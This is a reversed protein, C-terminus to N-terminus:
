SEKGEAHCWEDYISSFDAVLEQFDRTWVNADTDDSVAPAPVSVIFKGGASLGKPVKVQLRQGPIHPNSFMITDGPGKGVSVVLSVKSTKKRRPIDDDTMAKIEKVINDYLEKVADEKDL